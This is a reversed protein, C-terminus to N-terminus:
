KDANKLLSESTLVENETVYHTDGCFPCHLKAGSEPDFKFKYRCKACYYTKKESAVKAKASHEVSGIKARCESCLAMLGGKGRFVLKVDSAPVLKNCKECEKEKVM